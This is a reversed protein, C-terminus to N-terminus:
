EMADHQGKDERMTKMQRKKKNWHSCHSDEEQLKLLLTGPM